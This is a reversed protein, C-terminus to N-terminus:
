KDNQKAIVEFYKNKLSDQKWNRVILYSKTKIFKIYVNSLLSQVLFQCLNLWHKVSRVGIFLGYVLFWWM